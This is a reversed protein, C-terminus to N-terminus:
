RPSMTSTADLATAGVPSEISSPIRIMREM